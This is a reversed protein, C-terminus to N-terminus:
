MRRRKLAREKAVKAHLRAGCGYGELATFGVYLMWVKSFPPVNYKKMWVTMLGAEGAHIIIIAWWIYWHYQEMFRAVQPVPRILTSSLVSGPAFYSGDTFFVLGLLVCLLSSIHLIGPWRFSKVTISDRGLQRGCEEHMTVLRTRAESLSSVPPSIPITKRGAAYQITLSSLTLDELKPSRALYHSIGAYAELYRSLSDQHDKNMHSIIRTKIVEDSASAM